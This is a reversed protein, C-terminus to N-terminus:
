GVQRPLVGLAAMTRATALASQAHDVQPTVIRPERKQVVPKASNTRAM